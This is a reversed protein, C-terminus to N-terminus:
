RAACNVPTPVVTLHCSFLYKSNHGSFDSGCLVSAAFSICCSIAVREAGWAGVVVTFTLFYPIAFYSGCTMTDSPECGPQPMCDM